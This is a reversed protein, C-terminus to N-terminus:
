LWGGLVSRTICVVSQDDLVAGVPTDLLTELSLAALQSLAADNLKTKLTPADM